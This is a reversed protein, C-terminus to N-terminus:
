NILFQNNVGPHDVDHGICAVLHGFFEEDTFLSRIQPALKTTVILTFHFVSFGHKFNHFPNDRYRFELEKAFSKATKSRVKLEGNIFGISM